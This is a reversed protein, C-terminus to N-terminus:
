TCGIANFREQLLPMNKPLCTPENAGILQNELGTHMSYRSSLLVSRTPTCIPQVYYNSMGVGDSRLKDLHPTHIQPSRGLARMRFSLDYSGLDDALMFIINPRNTIIAKNANVSALTAALLIIITTTSVFLEVVTVAAWMHRLTSRARRVM